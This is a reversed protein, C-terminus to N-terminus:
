DAALCNLVDAFTITKRNLSVGGVIGQGLVDAQLTETCVSDITVEVHTGAPIPNNTAPSYMVNIQTSSGAQVTIPLQGAPISLESNSPVIRASVIRVSGANHNWLTVSQVPSTGVPVDAFDVGAISDRQTIRTGSLSVVPA